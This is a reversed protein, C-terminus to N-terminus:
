KILRANKRPQKASKAKTQDFATAVKGRPQRWKGVAQYLCGYFLRKFWKDRELCHEELYAEILNFEEKTVDLEVSLLPM